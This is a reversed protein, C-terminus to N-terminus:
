AWSATCRAQRCQHRGNKWKEVKPPETSVGRKSVVHGLFSTQRHFLSCKAPNLCLNAKAILQFVTRLNTLAVTYTSAHVLMDDLYVICASAPVPQLVKEMEMPSNCLGFPMVNFKWLGRGITFATKPRASSSLPVQWYGSRLDLASFWTSRSM